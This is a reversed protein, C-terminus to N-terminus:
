RSGRSAGLFTKLAQGPRKEKMLSEGVLLGKVRSRRLAKFDSRADLGSESVIVTNKPLLRSLRHTTGVDVRFTKLDRNNIGVLRPKLPIIKRIDGPTHVEFLADLGLSTAARSFAALERRSLIAAILLVADAGILRSEFIQYADIIFDKRLTPLRTAKRVSKLIESSGGFFRKDTLVSLAAAGNKQFDKALRVPDFNRRLLGKSPSRKKIEAIVALGNKKKLANLFRTKKKPLARAQREIVALPRRKKLAAIELRKVRVIKDLMM